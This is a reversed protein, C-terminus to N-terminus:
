SVSLMGESQQETTVRIWQVTAEELSVVVEKGNKDGAGSGMWCGQGWALFLVKIFM